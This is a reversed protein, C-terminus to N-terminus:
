NLQRHISRDHPTKKAIEVNNILDLPMVIALQEAQNKSCKHSLRFKHREIMESNVFIVVGAGKGREGKTGDTYIRTTQDDCGNIESINIFEAPHPWQNLGVEVDIKQKNERHGKCIDYRKAAVVAKIIIPTTGALICLRESSTTLYAEAFM